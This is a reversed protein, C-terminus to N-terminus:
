NLAQEDNEIMKSLFIGTDDLCGYGTGTIIADPKQVGSEKMAIFAATAGMKLIRSMRRIQKPDLWKAYDPEVCRMEDVRYDMVQALLADADWTKQPSINGM